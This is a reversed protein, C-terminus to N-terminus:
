FFVVLSSGLVKSFWPVRRSSPSGSWGDYALAESPCSQTVSAQPWGLLELDVRILQGGDLRDVIGDYLPAVGSLPM